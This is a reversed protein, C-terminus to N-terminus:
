PGNKCIVLISININIVEIKLDGYDGYRIFGNGRVM